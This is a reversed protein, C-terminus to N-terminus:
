TEDELLGHDDLIKRLRLLARGYRKRAAAPEIELICAIEDYSLGEFSRMMLIERDIEGLQAVAEGVGRILEERSLRQSPGDEAIIQRALIRSSRDPLPTEREVSRRQARLHRRRAKHLREYATKQLWLKFPMPRREIYDDLKRYAQLQTEQVLDSPDVRTRLRRDLRLEIFGHLFGQHRAFLDDFAGRDGAAAEDLLRKTASSDPKLEAM